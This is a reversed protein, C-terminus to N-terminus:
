RAAVETTLPLQSCCIARSEIDEGEMGRLALALGALLASAAAAAWGLFRRRSCSARSKYGM